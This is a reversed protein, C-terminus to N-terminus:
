FLYPKWLHLILLCVIVGAMTRHFKIWKPKKFAKGYVYLMLNLVISFWLLYGTHVRITGIAIWGHILGTAVLIMAMPKHLKRM